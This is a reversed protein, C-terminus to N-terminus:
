WLTYAKNTRYQSYLKSPFRSDLVEFWPQANITHAFKNQILHRVGESNVGLRFNGYGFYSAGLRYRSANIGAYQGEKHDPHPIVGKDDDLMPDGTFLNAGWYLDRFGIRLAATRYRDGGDGLAGGAIMKKNFPWGDNEYSFSIDGKSLNVGGVYQGINDGGTGGFKSTYLYVSQNGDNWTGGAFSRTEWTNCSGTGTQTGFSSSYGLTFSFNGVRVTGSVYAGFQLGETGM